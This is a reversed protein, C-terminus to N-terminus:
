LTTRTVRKEFQSDSRTQMLFHTTIGRLAIFVEIQRKALLSHQEQFNSGLRFLKVMSVHKEM